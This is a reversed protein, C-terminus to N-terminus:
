GQVDIGVEKWLGIALGHDERAVLMLLRPILHQNVNRSRLQRTVRFAGGSARGRGPTASQSDAKSRDFDCFWGAHKELNQSRSSTVAACDRMACAWSPLTCHGLVNKAARVRLVCWAFASCSMPPRITMSSKRGYWMAMFWSPAGIRVRSRRTVEQRLRHVLLNPTCVVDRFLSEFMRGVVRSCRAPDAGLPHFVSDLWYGKPVFATACEKQQSRSGQDQDRQAMRIHYWRGQIRCM